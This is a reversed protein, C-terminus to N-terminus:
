DIPVLLNKTANRTPEENQRSLWLTYQSVELLVGLQSRMQDPTVLPFVLFTDPGSRTQEENLQFNRPLTHFKQIM